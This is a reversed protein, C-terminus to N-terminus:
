MSSIHKITRGRREDEEEGHADKVESAFGKLVAEISTFTEQPKGLPTRLRALVCFQAAEWIAWYWQAVSNTSIQPFCCIKLIAKIKNNKM